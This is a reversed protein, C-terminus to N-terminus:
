KSKKFSIMQDLIHRLEKRQAKTMRSVKANHGKVTDLHVKIDKKANISVVLPVYVRKQHVHRKYFVTLEQRLSQNFAQNHTNLVYAKENANQLSEDLVPLLEICWPCEPFGFYYIGQKKERFRKMFDSPSTKIMRPTHDNYAIVGHKKQVYLNILTLTLLFVIIGIIIKSKKM